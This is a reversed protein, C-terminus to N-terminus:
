SSRRRCRKGQLAISVKRRRIHGIEQGVEGFERQGIQEMKENNEEDSEKDIAEQADNGVEHDLGGCRLRASGLGALLLGASQRADHEACAALNDPGDGQEGGGLFKADVDGRDGCEGSEGAQGDAETGLIEDAVNDGAEVDDEFVLVDDSVSDVNGVSDAADLMESQAAGDDAIGAAGKDSKGVSVDAGDAIKAAVPGLGKDVNADRWEDSLLFGKLGDFGCGGIEAVIRGPRLCEDVAWANEAQLGVILGSGRNAKLNAGGGRALVIDRAFQASANLEFKM